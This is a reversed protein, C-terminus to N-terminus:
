RDFTVLRLSGNFLRREGEKTKLIAEGYTGLGQFYGQTVETGESITVFECMHACRQEWDLRLEDASIYRHAYIFSAMERAWSRKNFSFDSDYVGGFDPHSSFLNVGIGAVMKGQFSQVLIGCCKKKQFNWLDNPWKLSLKSGEFFKAVLVSMELATFSPVPHPNITMSFCLSGPLTTWLHDNRGRGHLQDECSVLLQEVEPHLAMQEKILDQTSDCETVHIQKIM